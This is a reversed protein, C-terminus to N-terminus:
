LAEPKKIPKMYKNKWVDFYLVDDLDPKKRQKSSPPMEYGIPFMAEVEVEDPIQLSNKVTEESFFGVWCTALGLETIKLLFNEIIAGAQQRSYKEGREDYSRKIQDNDSCVVLIYEATAVFDQTAAEALEAIKEKDSVLIFKVTQINGALPAKNGSEIAEIIKKWDPKKSKFRRASHREKIAKDLDM